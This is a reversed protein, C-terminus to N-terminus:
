PSFITSNLAWFNLVNRDEGRFFSEDEFKGSTFLRPVVVKEEVARQSEPDM